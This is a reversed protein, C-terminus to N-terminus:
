IIIIDSLRLRAENDLDAFKIQAAGGTGDRDYYLSGTAQDYIIRDEADQAAKGRFFADSAIQGQPGVRPVNRFIASDLQITDDASSFGVIVDAEARVVRADFLYTDRGAEGRLVDRGRGGSLVDDGDGGRLDDRGGLGFLADDGALGALVNRGDNGRITNGISSGTLNLDTTGAANSTSLFEVDATAGLAFTVSSAVSDTGGGSAETVIDGLNQVLYSDDGLGGALTDVGTGGNLTDNGTGGQASVPTSSGSADFRDNGAGGDFTVLTVATGTLSGVTSQDDGEGPSLDLREINTMNVSFPVLNTRTFVAVGGTATVNAIDAAAAGNILQTDNGAEGNNTDTNDGNNWIFLDDDVGGNMTDNGVGGVITDNGALGNLTDIGAGGTIVNALNNGNGVFNDSGTRTLNEVEASLFLTPARTLVLDTGGGAAEGVLDLEEVDSYIDDGAGGIIQDIGLGGDLSDQGVGGFLFDNGNGGLLTDDGAGGDIINANNDGIILDRDNLGTLDPATRVVITGRADQSLFVAM